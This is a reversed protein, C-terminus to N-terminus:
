QGRGSISAPVQSGGATRRTLYGTAAFCGRLARALGGAGPNVGNSAM